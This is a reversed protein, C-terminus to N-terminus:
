GALCQDLRARQEPTMAQVADLLEQGGNIEEVGLEALLAAECAAAEPAMGAQVLIARLEDETVEDDEFAEDIMVDVEDTDLPPISFPTEVTVSTQLGLTVTTEAPQEGAAVSEAADTAVPAATLGGDDDPSCGVAVLVAVVVM